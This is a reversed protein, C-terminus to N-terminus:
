PEDRYPLAVTAHGPGVIWGRISDSWVALDVLHEGNEVYKRTVKGRNISVDEIPNVTRMQSQFQKLFGDDGMWATILKMLEMETEWGMTITMGTGFHAIAVKDSIHGEEGDHFYGTEPDRWVYWSYKRAMNLNHSLTYGVAAWACAQEFETRPGHILPPLEDGVAVDEWYRPEDGRKKDWEAYARDIYELEEKDYIYHPLRPQSDNVFSGDTTEPVLTHMGYGTAVCVVEDKQNIYVTDSSGLWQRPGTGDRRTKDEFSAENVIKVRFSDNEKIPKFWKYRTGSYRPAYLGLSPPLDSFLGGGGGPSWGVIGGIHAVFSPPAVIGGWRTKRAYAEDWYLPNEEGISFCYQRITDRSAVRTVLGGQPAEDLWTVRGRRSEMKEVLRQEDETYVGRIPVKLDEKGQIRNFFAEGFFVAADHM